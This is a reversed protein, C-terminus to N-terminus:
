SGGKVVFRATASSGVTTASAPTVIQVQYTGPELQDLLMTGRGNSLSLLVTRVVTGARTLIARVEDPEQGSPNTTVAIRAEPPVARSVSVTTHSRAQDVILTMADEGAQHTQNGDYRLVLAQRGVGDLDATDLVMRLRGEVLQGAALLRDGSLVRVIGSPVGTTSRVRATVAVVAGFRVRGSQLAGTVTTPALPTGTGPVTLVNTNEANGAMDVARYHVDGSAIGLDVPGTYIAWDATGVKLEIRDVGSLADAARITVTRDALTARSLPRTSDLRVDLTTPASANGTVDRARAEVVHRGDGPVSLTAAPGSTTGWPGGDVRTEIVAVATDDAATVSILAPDTVWWGNAGDAQSTFSVTPDAADTVTVTATPRDASGRSVTGEVTFTGPAAYAAPDIDDWVVQVPRTVGDGFTGAVTAPLVPAIGQRTSVATDAVASILLEPQYAERMADLEAQTVPIVTGHRPSSPLEADPVSSWSGSGIDDTTFALYGRGGHYSPQDIFMYWRDPDDNDRFITPGEGNTFTGGWPNPQGVGVGAKVLQWGPTSSTTPLSGTVTARLDTSREQRPTMSAEDKVVRYFTDGDQVVTADIMGRGTGRKVDIWPQPASFTVFDRTTAYMMRQYQTNIDRGATSTTPYLASAWYVVYEGAAEDYFAEPAWTNGAFDSSVKIHRQDSWHVLDTSEWVEIYKSGTEQAEGFDVAPYAKLDTALLFFRDGEPSRIIFPDRLGETGHASELVPDGNNLEDYDLPDDGKSAGFYIKEGDDTSEGAFYAFAYAEYDAPAPLPQVRVVISRPATAANRTGTVTLTVDAAPEEHAPRTVVGSASVVSPDSSVWAFTTGHLGSAPLTLNGRVDDPHVLQVAAVAEQAKGADDLDEALVTVPFQRTRTVLGRTVTATLTATGSPQGHAPRRVVGDNGVVATDSSAWTITTGTPGTAPLALDAVVASTDGLTLAASDAEAAATSTDAASEAAEAATLARSYIRM